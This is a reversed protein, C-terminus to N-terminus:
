LVTSNNHNNQYSLIINGGINEARCPAYNIAPAPTAGNEGLTVPAIEVRAEDYCNEAIFSRLIAGGGEM